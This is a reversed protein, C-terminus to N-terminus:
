SRPKHRFFQQGRQHATGRARLITGGRAGVGRAEHMLDDALGANVIACTLVRSTVKLEDGELQVEKLDLTGYQVSQYPRLFSTVDIVFGIGADRRSPTPALQLHEAISPMCWGGFAGIFVVDKRTDALGLRQLWRTQPCGRGLLITDGAAGAERALVVVEEGRGRQTVCILLTARCIARSM